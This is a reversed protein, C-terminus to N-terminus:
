VHCKVKLVRFFFNHEKAQCVISCWVTNLTFKCKEGNVSIKMNGLLNLDVNKEYKCHCFQHYLIIFNALLGIVLVM